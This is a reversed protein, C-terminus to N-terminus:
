ANFQLKLQRLVKKQYNAPHNKSVYWRTKMALDYDEMPYNKRQWKYRWWTDTITMLGKNLYSAALLDIFKESLN